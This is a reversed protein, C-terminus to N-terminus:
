RKLAPVNVLWTTLMVALFAISALGGAVGPSVSGPSAVAAANVAGATLALVAVCGFIVAGARADNTFTHAFPIAAGFVGMGLPRLPPLAVGILLLLLGGFVGGGVAIAELKERSRLAHRARSDLMVIANATGSALHAWLVLGMWLVTLLAGLPAWPGRLVSRSFRVLAFLGLIILWRNASSFRAAWLNLRLWARYWPARSKFAELLGERAADLRPDIRLAELFHREAADRDGAQLASWGASIHAAPDLPDRGLMVGVAGRNESERGQLRLAEALLFTAQADDPDIELAARASAEAEAWRQQRYRVWGRAIHGDTLAPDLRTAEHAADLAEPLRRLEALVNSRLAHHDASEPELAIARGITELARAESGPQRYQCFALMHLLSPDEPDGRLADFYAREAEDFRGQQVLMTARQTWIEPRDTSM